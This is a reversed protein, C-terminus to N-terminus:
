DVSQNQKFLIEIFTYLRFAKIFLEDIQHPYSMESVLFEVTDNNMKLKEQIFNIAFKNTIEHEPDDYYSDEDVVFEKKFTIFEDSNPSSSNNDELYPWINECIQNPIFELCDSNKLILTNKDVQEQSMLLFGSLQYCNCLVSNLQDTFSYDKMKPVSKSEESFYNLMDEYLEHTFPTIFPHPNDETVQEQNKSFEVQELNLLFKTLKFLAQKSADLHPWHIGTNKTGEESFLAKVYSTNNNCTTYSPGSIGALNFHHLFDMLYKQIHIFQNMSRTNNAFNHWDSAHEVFDFKHTNSDLYNSDLIPSEDERIIIDRITYGLVTHCKNCRVAFASKENPLLLYGWFSDKIESMVSCKECYVDEAIM